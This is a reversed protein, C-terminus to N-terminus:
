GLEIDLVSRTLEIVCGCGCCLGQIVSQVESFRAFDSLLPNVTSLPLLALNCSPHDIGDDYGENRLFWWGMRTPYWFTATSLPVYVDYHRLAFNIDVNGIPVSCLAGDWHVGNINARCDCPYHCRSSKKKRQLRTV